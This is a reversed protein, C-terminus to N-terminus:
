ECRQVRAGHSRTEPRPTQVVACEAHRTYPLHVEAALRAPQLHSSLVTNPGDQSRSKWQSLFCSIEVTNIVSPRNSSPKRVLHSAFALCSLCAFCVPLNEEGSDPLHLHLATSAVFFLSRLLGRITKWFRSFHENPTTCAVWNWDRTGNDFGWRLCTDSAAAVWPLAKSPSSGFVLKSHFGLEGGSHSIDPQSLTHPTAAHAWSVATDADTAGADCELRWSQRLLDFLCQAIRGQKAGKQGGTSLLSM